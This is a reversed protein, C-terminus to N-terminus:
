QQNNNEENLEQCNKYQGKWLYHKLNYMNINRLIWSSGKQGQKVCHFWTGM